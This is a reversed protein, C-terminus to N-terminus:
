EDEDVLSMVAKPHRLKSIKDFDKLRIVLYDDKLKKSKVAMIPIKDEMNAHKRVEPFLDLIAIRTRWKSEIYLDPHLSDSSTNHGSASGSLPTRKAGFFTAIRREM